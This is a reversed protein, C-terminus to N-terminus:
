KRGSRTRKKLGAMVLPVCEVFGDEPNILQKLPNEEPLREHIIKLLSSHRDIILKAAAKRVMKTALWSDTPIEIGHYLANLYIHAIDRVLGPSTCIHAITEAPLTIEWRQLCLLFTNLRKYSAAIEQRTPQYFLGELLIKILVETLAPNEQYMAHDFATEGEADRITVCAGWDVLLKVADPRKMLCALMLSTRLNKNTADIPVVRDLLIQIIHIYEDDIEDEDDFQDKRDSWDGRVAFHLPTADHLDACFGDAKLTCDAGNELLAKIMCPMVGVALAGSLATDGYTINGDVRAGADILLKIVAAFEEGVDWLNNALEDSYFSAMALPTIGESDKIKANVNAGHDILFQVLNVYGLYCALHILQQGKDNVADIQAGATFLAELVAIKCTYNYDEDLTKDICLAEDIVKFLLSNLEEQTLTDAAKNLLVRVIEPNPNNRHCLLSLATEGSYTIAAINAGRNLLLNMTDLHNNISACFLPTWGDNCVADINAGKGLLLKAITTAGYASALHLASATKQFHTGTNITTGEIDAGKKILVQVFLPLKRKIVAEFLYKEAKAIHPTLTKSFLALDYEDIAKMITEITSSESQSSSNHKKVPSESPYEVEEEDRERKASQENTRSMDM